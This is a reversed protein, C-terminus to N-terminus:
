PKRGVPLLQGGLQILKAKSAAQYLLSVCALSQRQKSSKSTNIYIDVM